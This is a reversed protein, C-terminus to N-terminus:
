ATLVWCVASLRWGFMFGKVVRQRDSQCLRYILSFNLLISDGFFMFFPKRGSPWRETSNRNPRQKWCLRIPPPTTPQLVCASPQLTPKASKSREVGPQRVGALSFSAQRSGRNRRESVIVPRPASPNWGALGVAPEDPVRNQAARSNLRRFRRCRAHDSLCLRGFARLCPSCGFAWLNPLSM